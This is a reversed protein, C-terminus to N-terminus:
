EKILGMQYMLWIIPLELRLPREHFKMIKNDPGHKEFCTDSGLASAAFYRCYNFARMSKVFDEQGKSTLYHEIEYSSYDIHKQVASGRYIGRKAKDTDIMHLINERLIHCNDDFVDMIMDFKALVIAIPIKYLREGLVNYAAKLVKDQVEKISDGLYKEDYGNIILVLCDANKVARLRNSTVLAADLVEGPVDYFFGYGLNGMRFSFPHFSCYSMDAEQTHAPLPKGVEVMYRKSIIEQAKKVGLNNDIDLNEAGISSDAISTFVEPKEGPISVKMLDSLSVAGGRQNNDYRSVVSNLLYSTPSASADKKDIGDIVMQEQFYSRAGLLTSLFVSKGSHTAGIMAINMSPKKMYDAPLLLHKYLEVNRATAGSFTEFVEKRYERGCCIAHRNEGLKGRVKENASVDVVAGASGSDTGCECITYGRLKSYGEPLVIPNFCYPCCKVKSRGIDDFYRAGVDRKLQVGGDKKAAAIERKEEITTLSEDVLVYYRADEPDKFFLRFDYGNANNVRIDDRREFSKIGAKLKIEMSEDVDADEDLDTYSRELPKSGQNSVIRLTIENRLLPHEVTVSLKGRGEEISYFIEQKAAFNIAYTYTDEPAPLKKEDRIIAFIGTGSLKSHGGHIDQNSSKILFGGYKKVTEIPIFEARGISREDFPKPVDVGNEIHYLRVGKYNQPIDLLVQVCLEGKREYDQFLVFEHDRCPDDSERTRQLDCSLCTYDFYYESM